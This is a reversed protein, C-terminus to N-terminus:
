TTRGQLRHRSGALNKTGSATYRPGASRPAPGISSACGWTPYLGGSIAWFHSLRVIEYRRKLAASRFSAPTGRFLASRNRSQRAVGHIQRREKGGVERDIEAGGVGAHEGLPAADDEVLRRDDGEVGELSLDFRDALLGVVHEPPRRRVDAGHPRQPVPDDGVEVGGLLHQHVEHALRHPPRRPLPGPQDDP